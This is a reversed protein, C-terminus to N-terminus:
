GFWGLVDDLTYPVRVVHGGHLQILTEDRCEDADHAIGVWVATTGRVPYWRACHDPHVWRDVGGTRGGSAEASNMSCLAFM